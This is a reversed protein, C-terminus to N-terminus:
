SGLSGLLSDLETVIEPYEVYLNVRQESDDKMNFLLGETEFETYGRVEMFSAPMDRHGGTPSDIYLWDGKRIAWISEYTNHITAERLPSPYSKGM